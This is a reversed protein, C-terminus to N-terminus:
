HNFFHLVVDERLPVFVGSVGGIEFLSNNATVSLQTLRLRCKKLCLKKFHLSCTTQRKIVTAHTPPRTAALLFLAEFHFIALAEGREVAQGELGFCRSTTRGDNKENLM